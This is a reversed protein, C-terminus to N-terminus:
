HGRRASDPRASQGKASVLGVIGGIVLMALGIWILIQLDTLAGICGALVGLVGLGAMIWGGPTNGHDPVEAHTPDGLVRGDETVVVGADVGRDADREERLDRRRTGSTTTTETHSM